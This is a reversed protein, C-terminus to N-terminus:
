RPLDPQGTASVTTFGTTRNCKIHTFGTTRNGKGHTFGTTRNSPTICTLTFQAMTIDTYKSVPEDQNAWRYQVDRVSYGDTVIVM